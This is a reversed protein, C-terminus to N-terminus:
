LRGRLALIPDVLWHILRRRELAVDADLAMGAQLPLTRGYAMVADSEPRVRVKYVPEEAQGPPAVQAPTLISESVSVVEGPHSGFRAHPFAAYRLRVAQGAEIFGAARSPVLLIAQMRADPELLTMLTRGPRVADGPEVELAAVRGAMPARLVFRWQLHIDAQEQELRSARDDLENLRLTQLGPLARLSEEIRSQEEALELRASRLAEAESALQLRERAALDLQQRAVHGRAELQLLAHQRRELLETEAALIGAQADLGEGRALARLRGAELAERELEFRALEAERTQQLRSWQAQLAALAAEAASGGTVAGRPDRIELLIQGALVQEGESVALGHVLGAEPAEVVLVGGDPVLYGRVRETRTFEAAWLLWGAAALFLLLLALFASTGPPRTLLLDGWLRRRNAALAQPRFLEASHSVAM